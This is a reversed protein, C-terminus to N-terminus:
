RKFIPNMLSDKNDKSHALRTNTKFDLSFYLVHMLKMFRFLAHRFSLKGRDCISWNTSTVALCWSSLKM